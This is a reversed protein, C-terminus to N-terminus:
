SERRGMGGRLGESCPFVGGFGVDEGLPVTREDLLAISMADDIAAVM